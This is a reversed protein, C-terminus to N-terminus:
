FCPNMEGGGGGRWFYFIKHNKKQPFLKKKLFGECDVAIVSFLEIINLALRAEDPTSVIFVLMRDSLPSESSFVKRSFIPPPLCLLYSRAFICAYTNHKASKTHM